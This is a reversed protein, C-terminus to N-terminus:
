AALACFFATRTILKLRRLTSHLTGGTPVCGDFVAEKVTSCYFTWCVDTHMGKITIIYWVYPYM